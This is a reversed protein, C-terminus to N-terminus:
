STEERTYKESLISHLLTLEESSKRLKDSFIELFNYAIEPFDKLLRKLASRQIVYIECDENAIASASRPSQSFLGIEGYAEGSRIISLLAKINNKVKVIKLSGTKVIYLHDSISNEISITIGKKYSSLESIEAFAMLKEAPVNHFLITKKFFLVTELFKFPDMDTGEKEPTQELLKKAALSLYTNSKEMLCTFYKKEKQIISKANPLYALCYSACLCIWDNESKIFHYIEEERDDFGFFHKGVKAIAAWSEFELLPIILSRFRSAGLGEVIEIMDLRQSRERIDLDKRRLAVAGHPELLAMAELAWGCKHFIQEKLADNLIQICTENEPIMAKSKFRTWLYVDYHLKKLENQIWEYLVNEMEKNKKYKSIVKYGDVDDRMIRLAHVMEFIMQPNTALKSFQFITGIAPRGIKQIIDGTVEIHSPSLKETILLAEVKSKQSASSLIAKISTIFTNMPMSRLHNKLTEDWNEPKLQCLLYFGASLKKENESELLNSLLALVNEKELKEYGQWLFHAAEIQVRINNEFLLPKIQDKLNWKWHCNMNNLSYVANSRIRYDKDKLLSEIFNRTEPWYFNKLSRSIVRKVTQEKEIEFISLLTQLAQKSGLQALIRVALSRLDIESSSSYEKILSLIKQDYNSGIEEIIEDTLYELPIDPVFGRTYSTRIRSVIWIASISLVFIIILISNFYNHLIILLFGAIIIASPKIIGEIITKARGRKEKSISAFLMQFIPSFANEFIVYRFFQVIIFVWFIVDKTFGGILFYFIFMSGFLLTYPLFSFLKIFGYKSVLYPTVFLLGMITIIGHAIYFSFQFSALDKSTVFQLYCTKWFMYDTLFIAIFIIFYLYSIFRVLDISLVSEVDKFIARKELAQKPIYEKPLLRVRYQEAIRLAIFYAIIFSFAWIAIIMDPAMMELLARSVSAGTLGGAFGWAAIKPFEKKTERTYCIDNALTWFTLFLVTKSLYSIPYLFHLIISVVNSGLITNLRIVILYIFLIASISILQISLLKGRNFRDINNFFLPPLLFLLLGNILYLKGIVQPGAISVIMSLAVTEGVIAGGFLFLMLFALLQFSPLLRSM